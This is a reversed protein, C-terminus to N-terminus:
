DDLHFKRTLVFAEQLPISQGVEWGEIHGTRLCVQGKEQMDIRVVPATHHYAAVHLAVGGREVSKFIFRLAQPITRFARDKYDGYPSNPTALILM